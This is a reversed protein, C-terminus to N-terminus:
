GPGEDHSLGFPKGRLLELAATEDEAINLVHNLHLFTLSEMAQRRISHVTLKGGGQGFRKHVELLWGICRTDIFVVDALSLLVNRACIEPTLFEDLPPLDDLHLRVDQSLGEWVLPVEWEDFPKRALTASECNHITVVPRAGDYPSNHGGM